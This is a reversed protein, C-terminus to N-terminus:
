LLQAVIDVVSGGEYRLARLGAARAADMDASSNGVLFSRQSDVPWAAMLDLLMGPGPKRRRCDRRYAPIVAESHHPCWEFADVHGGVSALSTQMADHFATVADEDYYGRAIGAQNTVVFVFYGLENIRAIAERAQPMWVLDEVRHTYGGDHNLTGDRDFFVAPRTRAAVLDVQVQAFTEPIGIDVFYAGERAQSAVVRGEAVLRPLVDRELSCAAHPPILDLIARDIAYVGASILGSADALPAGKEEFGVVRDAKLTVRGFRATDPVRHLLMQAKVEPDRERATHWGRGFRALDADIWSDGNLLLFQPALRDAAFRLAGGTGLPGPEVLVEVQAGFLRRGHFATVIQEGFRGALLVIHKVGYRAVEQILHFLFPRGAVELMPKPTAETLAGLRTGMGGCLIVAQDIM